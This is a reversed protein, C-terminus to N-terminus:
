RLRRIVHRRTVGGCSVEYLLRNDQGPLERITPARPEDRGATYVAVYTTRPAARRVMLMPVSGSDPQDTAPYGCETVTTGAQGLMDIRCYVDDRKWVGHWAEDVPAAQFDRLWRWAGERSPPEVPTVAAGAVREAGDDFVHTVWDIQRPKDCVVQFVDLCYAENLVVTRQQRVGPYLQGRLDAATVRKEAPLNRFECLELLDPISRQSAGDIMVTNQSLGGRNLEGQIASSFAHPVTAKGEVDPLLLKGYGFLMLNLADNHSHVSSRDYTLFACRADSFWYAGDAATRLFAYGHDAYLRSRIAPAAVAEDPIPPSFLAYVSRQKAHQLLWAHAPDRWFGWTWEYTPVDFLRQRMGYADGIPPILGNPFLVGIMADFLQKLTRGDAFTEDVLDRPVGARHACDAYMALPVIAAFQYVLSSELWLGDDLTGLEILRVLGRPGDLCYSVLAEQDYFLGLLGISLRHWALHNNIGGGIGNEIWYRDNKLVARGFRTFFDDLRARQAADLRAFLADYARLAQYAWISYNMGVDYHVPEFSFTTLHMLMQEAKEYAAADDTILAYFVLNSMAQAVKNPEINTHLYIEPYTESWPKDKIAEWWATPFPELSVDMAKKADAELKAFVPALPETRALTRARAIAEPSFFLFPTERRVTEHSLAPIDALPAADPGLGMAASAILAFVNTFVTM